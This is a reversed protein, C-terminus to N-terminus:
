NQLLPLCVSSWVIIETGEQLSLFWVQKSQLTMLWCQAVSLRVRCLKWYSSTLHGSGVLSIRCRTGCCVGGGVWTRKAPSRRFHTVDKWLLLNKKKKLLMSSIFSVRLFACLNICSWEFSRPLQSGYIKSERLSLLFVSCSSHVLLLSALSM